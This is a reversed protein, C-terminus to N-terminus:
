GLEWAIYLVKALVSGKATDKASLNKVVQVWTSATAPPIISIMDYKNALQMLHYLETLSLKPPDKSYNTQIIRLLVELGRPDDEPLDVIWPGSGPKSEKFPGFLMKKWVVSSRRMANSCVRFAKEAGELESGARLILDGDPDIPIEILSAATVAAPVEGPPTATEDCTKAMPRPTTKSNGM